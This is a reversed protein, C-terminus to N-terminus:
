FAAIAPQDVRALALADALALVKEASPAVTRAAPAAAALPTAGLAFALLGSINFTM